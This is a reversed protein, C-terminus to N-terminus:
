GAAVAPVVREPPNSLERRATLLEPRRQRGDVLQGLSPEPEGAVRVQGPVVAAVVGVQPLHGHIPDPEGTPEGARM